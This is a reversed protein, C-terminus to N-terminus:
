FLGKGKILLKKKDLFIRGFPIFCFHGACAPIFVFGSLKLNKMFVLVLYKM